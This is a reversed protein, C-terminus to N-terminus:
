GTCNSVAAQSQGTQFLLRWHRLKPFAKYNEPRIDCFWLSLIPQTPLSRLSWRAGVQRSHAPDGAVLDPKGPGWGVRGQVGGPYILFQFAAIGGSDTSVSSSLPLTSNWATLRSMVPIPQSLLPKCCMLVCTHFSLEGGRIILNNYPGNDTWCCGVVRKLEAEPLGGSGWEEGLWCMCMWVCACM